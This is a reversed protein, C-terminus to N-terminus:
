SEWELTKEKELIEDIDRNITEPPKDPLTVKKPKNSIGKKLNPKM